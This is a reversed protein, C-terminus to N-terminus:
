RIAYLIFGNEFTYINELKFNQQLYDYNEWVSADLLQSRGEKENFLLYANQEIQNIKKGWLSHAVHPTYTRLPGEMGLTYITTPEPIEEQVIATMKQERQNHVMLKQLLFGFMGLQLICLSGWLIPRIKPAPLKDLIRNFAPFFFLLIFPFSLLLYRVNQFSVGGLYFAYFFTMLIGVVIAQKQFDEKRVFFLFPIGLLLYSPHWWNKLVFLLNINKYQAQALDMEFKSQFLHKVSWLSIGKDGLFSFFDSQRVLLQPLFALFIAVIVLPLWKFHRYKFFYFITLFSPTLLLPAALYRTMFASAFCFICMLLAFGVAHRWYLVAYYFGAVIFALCLMDTMALMSAKLVNPSLVFFLLTFPMVRQEYTPFVLKLLGSFYFTAVLLSLISVLQLSFDPSFVFSFVSGIFSYTLPIAMFFDQVVVDTGYSQYLSKAVRLYEHSDQGYYGNFGLLGKVIIFILIPVAFLLINQNKKLM